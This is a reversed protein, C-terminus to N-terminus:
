FRTGIGFITTRFDIQMGCRLQAGNIVKCSQTHSIITFRHSQNKGNNPMAMRMTCYYNCVMNERGGM